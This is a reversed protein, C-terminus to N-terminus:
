LGSKERGSQEASELLYDLTPRPHAVVGVQYAFLGKSIIMLWSNIKLLLRSLLNDGLALPYPAPLGVMSEIDYGCQALMRVLSGPTFLRHHDKDLIGKKGYHFWGLFLGLRVPLFAINATTIVFPPKKVEGNKMCATRLDILLNEPKRLHEIIDLLLIKEVRTDEPDWQYLELDAEITRVSKEQLLPQIHKDVSVVSVGKDTLHVAMNGAGSGIDLVRMGPEVCDLAYQHSSAYGVKVTYHENNQSYDFKPTYFIGLTMLKSQITSFLILAAYKLGNV